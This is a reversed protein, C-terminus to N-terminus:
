QISCNRLWLASNQLITVVMLQANKGAILLLQTGTSTGWQSWQQFAGGGRQAVAVTQDGDINVLHGHTDTSAMKEVHLFETGGRQKIWVEMDSTM